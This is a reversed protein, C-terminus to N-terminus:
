SYGNILRKVNRNPLKVCGTAMIVKISQRLPTPAEALNHVCTKLISFIVSM